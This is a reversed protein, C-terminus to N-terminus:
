RRTSDLNRWVVITLGISGEPHEQTYSRCNDAVKSHHRTICCEVALVPEGERERERERERARARSQPEKERAYGNVRSVVFDSM